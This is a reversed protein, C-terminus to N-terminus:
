NNCGVAELVVNFCDRIEACSREICTRMKSRVDDNMLGHNYGCYDDAFGGSCAARKENCAKVYSQVAPDTIYKMAQKAVCSDDSVGCERTSLCSLFPSYEDARLINKYCRLQEQCEAASFSGSGCRTARDAAAACFDVPAGDPLIVATDTVASGDTPPKTSSDTSGDVTNNDDAIAKGGCGLALIALLLFRTM